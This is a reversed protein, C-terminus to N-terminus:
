AFYDALIHRNYVKLNSLFLPLVKFTISKQNKGRRIKRWLDRFHHIQEGPLISATDGVRHIFKAILLVAFSKQVLFFTLYFLTFFTEIYVIM